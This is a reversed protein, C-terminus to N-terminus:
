AKPLMEGEYKGDAQGDGRDIMDVLTRIEQVTAVVRERERGLPVPRNVLSIPFQDRLSQGRKPTQNGGAKSILNQYM